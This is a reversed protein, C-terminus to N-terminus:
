LYYKKVARLILNRVVDGSGRFSYWGILFAVLICSVSCSFVRFFVDVFHHFKLVVDLNIHIYVKCLFSHKPGYYKTSKLIILM